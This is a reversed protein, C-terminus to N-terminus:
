RSHVEQDIHSIKSDTADGDADYHEQRRRTIEASDTASKFEPDLRYLAEKLNEVDSSEYEPDLENLESKHYKIVAKKCDYYWSTYTPWYPLYQFIFSSTPMLKFLFALFM